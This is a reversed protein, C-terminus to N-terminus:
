RCYKLMMTLAQRLAASSLSFLRFVAEGALSDGVEDIAVTLMVVLM